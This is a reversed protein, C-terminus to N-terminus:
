FLAPQPRLQHREALAIRQAPTPEVALLRRFWAPEKTGGFAQRAVAAPDHGAARLVDLGAEELGRRAHRASFWHALGIVAGLLLGVVLLVPKPQHWMDTLEGFGFVVHPVLAATYIVVAQRARRRPLPSAWWGLCGALYWDQEASNAPLLHETVEIRPAEDEDSDVSALVKRRKRDEVVEVSPVPVRAADALAALRRRVAEEQEGYEPVPPLM